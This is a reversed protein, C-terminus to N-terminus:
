GEACSSVYFSCPFWFLGALLFVQTGSNSKIFFLFLFLFSLFLLFLAPLAWDALVLLASIQKGATAISLTSTSYLSSFKEQYVFQHFNNGVLGCFPFVSKPKESDLLERSHELALM